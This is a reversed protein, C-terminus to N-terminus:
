EDVIELHRENEYAQSQGFFRIEQVSKNTISVVSPMAEKAIASIDLSGNNSNATKIGGDTKGSAQSLQVGGTVEAQEEANTWQNIMYNSGQFAASATVGFALALAITKAGKKLM